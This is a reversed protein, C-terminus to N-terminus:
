VLAKPPKRKLSKRPPLTVEPGQSHYLLFDRLDPTNEATEKKWEDLPVLVAAEQGRRTIMQPGEKM